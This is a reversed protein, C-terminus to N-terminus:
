NFEGAFDKSVSLGYLDAGFICEILLDFVSFCVNLQQSKNMIKDFMEILYNLFIGMGKIM